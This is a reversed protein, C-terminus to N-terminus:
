SFVDCYRTEATPKSFRFVRIVTRFALAVMRAISGSRLRRAASMTREYPLRPTVVKGVHPAPIRLAALM